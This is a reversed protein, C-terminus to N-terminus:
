LHRRVTLASRVGNAIALVILLLVGILFDVWLVNSVTGSHRSSQAMVGSLLFLVADALLVGLLKRWGLM